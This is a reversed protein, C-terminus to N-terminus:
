SPAILLLKGSTKRSSLALHAEAADEMPYTRGIAISLGNEIASFVEKARHELSSRDSTYHFLSPRTVFLSGGQNLRQLDFPPVPGSSQGFLAMLGRPQIVKLSKDFTDKGVSDYVVAVGKSNTYEKTKAVFDESSYLIVHDAGASKVKQAKDETSCTGIVTAGAKKLLQVLLLGTGGAAAHVLATDGPKTERVGHTLYHATMGQLMSAAAIELSISDPVLVLSQANANVTLGYSGRCSAWAVRDGPKVQTVKDGISEVVGSGELGPTMPLEAPYLGERFYIDIYNVGASHIRVQAEEPKLEKPSSEEWRLVEPGGTEHIVISKSM